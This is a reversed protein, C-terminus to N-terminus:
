LSLPPVKFRPARRSVEGIWAQLEPITNKQLESVLARSGQPLGASTTKIGELKQAFDALRALMAQPAMATNFTENANWLLDEADPLGATLKDYDAAFAQVRSAGADVIRQFNQSRDLAEARPDQRAAEVTDSSKDQLGGVLDFIEAHETSKMKQALVERSTKYMELAQNLRGAALTADGPSVPRNYYERLTTLAGLATNAIRGMSNAQDDVGEVDPFLSGRRLIDTIRPVNEACYNGLRDLAAEFKPVSEPSNEGPPDYVTGPSLQPLPAMDPTQIM